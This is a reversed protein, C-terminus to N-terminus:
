KKGKAKPTFKACAVESDTPFALGSNLITCIERGDEVKLNACDICRPLDVAM